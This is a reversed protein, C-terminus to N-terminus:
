KSFMLNELDIVSPSNNRNGENIININVSHPHIAKNGPKYRGSKTIQSESPKPSDKALLQESYDLNDIDNNEGKPPRQTEIETGSAIIEKEM